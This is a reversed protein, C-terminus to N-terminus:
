DSGSAAIPLQCIETLTVVVACTQHLARRVLRKGGGLGDRTEFGFGSHLNCHHTRM